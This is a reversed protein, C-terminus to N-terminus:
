VQSMNPLGRSYEEAFLTFMRAAEKDAVLNVMKTMSALGWTAGHEHRVQHDHLIIGCVDSEEIAKKLDDICGDLFRDMAEGYLRGFEEDPIALAIRSNDRNLAVCADLVIVGPSGSSTIQHAAKRVRKALQKISKLRKAAIVVRKGATHCIVDPEEFCVPELSAACCVGAVFLELQADRGNSNRTDDQPLVPDNVMRALVKRMGPLGPVLPLHDLAFSVIRLDRVSECAWEFRPDDRGITGAANALVSYMQAFRSETPVDVGYEGLRRLVFAAQETYTRQVQQNSYMMLTEGVEDGIVAREAVWQRCLPERGDVVRQVEQVPQPM